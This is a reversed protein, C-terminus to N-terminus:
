VVQQAPRIRYDDIVAGVGQPEPTQGQRVVRAQCLLELPYRTIELPLTVTVIIETDQRLRIPLEVFLGNGSM